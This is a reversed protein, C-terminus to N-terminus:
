KLVPLQLAHSGTQEQLVEFGQPVYPILAAAESAPGAPASLERSGALTLAQSDAPPTQSASEAAAPVEHFAQASSFPEPSAQVEALPSAPHQWKDHVALAKGVQELLYDAVVPKQVFGVAGVQFARLRTEANMNGTVMIVPILALEPEDQLLECIEYGSMDPLDIDLLILDTQPHQRLWHLAAQGYGVGHAEHGATRLLSQLLFLTEPCDDVVLVRAQLM